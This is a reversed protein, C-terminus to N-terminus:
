QKADRYDRELENLQELAQELSRPAAEIEKQKIKAGACFVRREAMWEEAECQMHWEVLTGPQGTTSSVPGWGYAGQGAYYHLSLGDMVLCYTM